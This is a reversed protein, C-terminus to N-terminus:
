LSGPTTTFPALQNRSGIGCLCGVSVVQRQGGLEPLCGTPSGQQRVQQSFLASTQRNPRLILSVNNFGSPSVWSLVPCSAVRECGKKTETPNPLSSPPQSLTECEIAWVQRLVWPLEATAEYTNLNSAHAAMGLEEPYRKFLSLSRHALALTQLCTRTNARKVSSLM